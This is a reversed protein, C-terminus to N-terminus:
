QMTSSSSNPTVVSLDTHHKKQSLCQLLPGPPAQPRFDLDKVNEDHALRVKFRVWCILPAMFELDRLLLESSIVGQGFVVKAAKNGMAAMIAEFQGLCSQGRVTM